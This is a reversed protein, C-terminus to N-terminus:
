AAAERVLAPALRRAVARLVGPKDQCWPDSLLLRDPADAVLRQVAQDPRLRRILRVAADVHADLGPVPLLDAAFARGWATGRIAHLNHIKVSEVALGALLDGLREPADAGEGPLGLIVHVCREFGQHDTRAIADRFCALDHGRNMARLLDDRDSQLGIEVTLFTQRALDRLVAVTAPPLADPRTGISVGVCGPLREAVGDYLRRLREAPAHTNTFAQFYAIFGDVRRHRRVLAARGREWQALLDPTGGLGPAFAANDCYACGGRAVTGDLNPCTFGAQLCVKRIHRGPFREALHQRYSRYGWPGPAAMNNM